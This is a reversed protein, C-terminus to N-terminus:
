DTKTNDARTGCANSEAHMGAISPGNNRQRAGRIETIAGAGMSDRATRPRRTIARVMGAIMMNGDIRM